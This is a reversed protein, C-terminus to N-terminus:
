KNQEKLNPASKKEKDFVALLHKKTNLHNEAISPSRTTLNCLTCIYPEPLRRGNRVLYNDMHRLIKERELREKELRKLEQDEQIKKACELCLEVM